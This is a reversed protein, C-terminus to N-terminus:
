LIVMIFLNTVAKCCLEKETKRQLHVWSVVKTLHHCGKIASRTSVQAGGKSLNIAKRRKSVFDFQLHLWSVSEEYSDAILNRCFLQQRRKVLLSCGTFVESSWYKAKGNKSVPDTESTLHFVREECRVVQGCHACQIRTCADLQRQKERLIFGRYFPQQHCASCM